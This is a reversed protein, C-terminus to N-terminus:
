AEKDAQVSNLVRAIADPRGNVRLVTGDRMHVEVDDFHAVGTQLDQVRVVDEPNVYIARTPYAFRKGQRIEYKEELRVLAM